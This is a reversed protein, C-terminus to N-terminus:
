DDIIVRLNDLNFKKKTRIIPQNNIFEIKGLILNILNKEVIAIQGFSFNYEQLNDKQRLFSLYNNNTGSVIFSEGDIFVEDGYQISKVTVVESSYLGVSKVRGVIENEDIVYDSINIGNKSGKNIIFNKNFNLDRDGIVSVGISNPLNISNEHFIKYQDSYKSTLVKLYNNFDKLYQNQLKLDNILILLEHNKKFKYFFDLSSSTIFIFPNELKEKVFFSILRVKNSYNPFTFLTLFLFFCIIYILFVKKNNIM